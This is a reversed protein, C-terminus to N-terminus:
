YTISFPGNNSRENEIYWNGRVSNPMCEGSWVQTNNGGRVFRRLQFRPGSWFGTAMDVGGNYNEFSMEATFCTGEPCQYTRDIRIQGSFALSPGQQWDRYAAGARLYRGCDEGYVHGATLLLCAFAISNILRKTM